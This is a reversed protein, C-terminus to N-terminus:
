VIDQCQLSLGSMCSAILTGTGMPLALAMMMHITKRNEACAVLYKTADEMGLPAAAQLM